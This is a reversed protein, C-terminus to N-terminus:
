TPLIRAGQSSRVERMERRWGATEGDLRAGDVRVVTGQRRRRAYQGAASTCVYERVPLQIRPRPPIPALLTPRSCDGLRTGREQSM